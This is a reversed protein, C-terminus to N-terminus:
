MLLNHLSVILVLTKDHSIQLTQPLNKLHEPLNDSKIVALDSSMKGTASALFLSKLQDKSEANMCAEQIYGFNINKYDM